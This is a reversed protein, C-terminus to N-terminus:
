RVAGHCALCPLPRTQWFRSLLNGLAAGVIMQTDETRTPAPAIYVKNLDYKNALAQELEACAAYATNFTVRVLGRRRAESLAKNVRLRTAGLREAVKEQTLGEIHYAWSVRTLFREEIDIKPLKQRGAM